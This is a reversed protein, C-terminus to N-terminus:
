PPCAPCCCGPRAPGPSTGVRIEVCHGEAGTFAVAHTSAPTM